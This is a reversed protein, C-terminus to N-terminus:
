RISWTLRSPTVSEQRALLTTGVLRYTSREVNWGSRLDLAYEVRTGDACSKGGRVTTDNTVFVYVYEESTGWTVRRTSLTTPVDGGWARLAAIEVSRVGPNGVHVDGECEPDPVLWEPRHTAVGRPLPLSFRGDADVSAPEVIPADEDLGVFRPLPGTTVVRGAIHTLAPQEDLGFSRCAALLLPLGLLVLWSANKM